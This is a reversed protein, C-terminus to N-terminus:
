PGVPTQWGASKHSISSGELAYRLGYARNNTLDPAIYCYGYSNAGGCTGTIGLLPDIPVGAQFYDHLPNNFCTDAAPSGILVESGCQPFNGGVSAAYLALANQIQKINQERNTDRSKMRSERISVMVFSAIMSAVALVVLVEVITFGKNKNKEAPM